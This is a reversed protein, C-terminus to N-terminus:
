TTVVSYPFCFHYKDLDKVDSGCYMTSVDWNPYYKKALAKVADYHLQVGNKEYIFPITVSYYGSDARIRAGLNKTPRLYKTTIAIM